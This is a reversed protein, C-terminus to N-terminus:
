ELVNAIGEGGLPLAAGRVLPHEAEPELVVDKTLAANAPIQEVIGDLPRRREQGEHVQVGRHRGRTRELKCAHVARPSEGLIGLDDTLVPRRRALEALPSSEGGDLTRQRLEAVGLAVRQVGRRQALMGRCPQGATVRHVPRERRVVEQALEFRVAIEDLAEDNRERDDGLRLLVVPCLKERVTASATATPPGADRLEEDVAHDIRSRAPQVLGVRFALPLQREPGVRLVIAPRDRGERAGTELARRM